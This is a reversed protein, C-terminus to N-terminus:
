GHARVQGREDTWAAIQIVAAELSTESLDAPTAPENSNVGGSVLPHATSFLEVGDGGDYNTDFGNNLIAAAKTQKTYAMAPFRTLFSRSIVM